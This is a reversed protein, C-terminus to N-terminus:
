MNTVLLSRANAASLDRLVAVQTSSPLTKFRTFMKEAFDDCHLKLTADLSDETWTNFPRSAIVDTTTKGIDIGIDKLSTIKLKTNLLSLTNPEDQNPSSILARHQESVPASDPVAPLLAENENVWTPQPGGELNNVFYTNDQSLM